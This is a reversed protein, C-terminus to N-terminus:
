QIPECRSFIVAYEDHYQQCWQDSAEVQEVLKSQTTTSLLLLNIGDRKFISEWKTSGHSIEQYEEMQKPPFPFFRSDISIPRSPLAFLLYSGFVYDNWLPGQVEPHEKLWQVAGRPTADVAYAAPAEAWWKERLGPLYLLSLPIFFCALAINVTPSSVKVSNDLKNRTLDALPAATLVVLIFLFWIVYRIGSVALWGFGLFWIWELLSLKRSSIAALPAFILTWGFFMNMQWGANLPPHWEVSYAQNSPTTLMFAVHTWLRVGQPNLLTGTFMIALTILISKRNGKGFVFAAGVLLFVLVFSGHVNAWLITAVPLIWLFRHDGSQWQLLIYLCIAFLPYAFLQARMEWNNSSALGLLLVLITALRPGSDRRAAFWIISYTLGLLIGRLLFTAAAGGRDYVLWFFVGALWPEYVIPQGAQTWSMTETTPVTGNTVTEQGVRLVWWYDQPHIAFLFSLTILPLIALSLWLFDYSRSPTLKM